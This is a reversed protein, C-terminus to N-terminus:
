LPYFTVGATVREGAADGFFREATSDTDIFQVSVHWRDFARSFGASWYAYGEGFVRETDWYGYGFDFDIRHVLPARFSAEYSTAPLDLGQLDETHGVTLTFRDRYHLSAMAEFYNYDRRSDADPYTYFLATVDASWRTSLSRRYGLYYDVELERPHVAPPFAPIETDSAWVGAFVGTPHEFDLSVQFTADEANQSLGRYVYDTTFALSITFNDRSIEARAPATLPGCLAGM